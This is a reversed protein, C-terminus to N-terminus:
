LWNRRRRLVLEGIMLATIMVVTWWGDLLGREHREHRGFLKEAVRAFVAQADGERAYEGGCALAAARLTADDVEIHNGEGLGPSVVQTKSYIEETGNFVQVQWEGRESFEVHALGRDDIAVPTAPQTGQRVAARLTMGPALTTLTLLASDGPRYRERDWAVRVQRERDGAMQQRVMQRWLTGFASEQGPRALRWLTNTAVAVVTGRGHPQSVLVPVARGGDIATLLVSAVPSLAGLRNRSDIAAGAPLLNAVGATVPLQGAGAPVAVPFSGRVFGDDSAFPLVAGLATGTYGGAGFSQEGGMVILTGGQELWSVLAQQEGARWASAPFSGLIITGYRALEKAATPLGGKLQTDGDLRDGELLYKEGTSNVSTRLLGTFTLGPDRALEQRLAKYDAGIERTFFLVHLTQERVDIAFERQNDSLAVEGPAAPIMARYRRIGATDHTRHFVVRARGAHVDAIEQAQSQWRGDIWQELHVPTSQVSAQQALDVTITTALRVEATAPAQVDVISLNKWTTPDTGIGIVSVPTAPPASVTFPEDGGDTFVVTALAGRVAAEAGLGRMIAAPDGPRELIKKDNSKEVPLDEQVRTDFGLVRVTVGSPLARQLGPLLRRVRDLRSEKGDDVVDMSSSTDVLAVVTGRVTATQEFRLTPGLLMTLLILAIILRPALHWWAQRPDLRQRLRRYHAVLIWVMVVALAAIVVSPAIPMWLLVAPAATSSPQQKVPQRPLGSTTALWGEGALALLAALVLWATVDTGTGHDRWAPGVTEPDDIDAVTQPGNGFAPLSAGSLYRQVGENPAAQVAVPEALPMGELQFVGAQAPPPLERRPGSWIVGSSGAMKLRTMQDSTSAAFGQGAIVRVVHADNAPPLALAHIMALSWGKLPLDSWAPHFALGSVVALGTGVTREVVLPTGDALGYAATSGAVAVLPRWRRANAESIRVGGADGRLDNWSAATSSLVTLPEAETGDHFDKATCGLWDWGVPIDGHGDPKPVIIFRGGATVWQQVTASPLAALADWTAIVVAPPNKSNKELLAAVATPLVPTPILGSHSGDGEPSLAAPLLAFDSAVGVLLAPMRPEAWLVIGATNNGVFGDGSLRVLATCAGAVRPILVVSVTFEGGAPVTAEILRENGDAETIRAAVTAAVSGANALVVGTRAPRGVLVRQLPPQVARIAVDPTARTPVVVRHVIVTIGPLASGPQSWEGEQADTFVHLERRTTAAEGVVAAANALTRPVDASASTPNLRDLGAHLATHDSVLGRPLAWTPDVVAPILAASDGPQMADVLSAAAARAIALATRGDKALAGMSASTDVVIAVAAPGGRGIGVLQPRSVAQIVLLLVLVRLILLLIERLRRRAQAHPDVRMFFMLSSFPLSQRRLRFCLHFIVPVAAVPVLWLLWPYLAIM